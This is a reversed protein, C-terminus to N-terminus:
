GKFHILTGNKPVFERRFICVSQSKNKETASCDHRFLCIWLLQSFCAWSICKKEGRKKRRQVERAPNVEGQVREFHASMPISKEKKNESMFLSLLPLSLTSQVTVHGLVAIVGDARILNWVIQDVNKGETFRKRNHQELWLRAVQVSGQLLLLNWDSCSGSCPLFPHPFHTHKM